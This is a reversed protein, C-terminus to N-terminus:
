RNYNQGHLLLKGGVAEACGRADVAAVPGVLLVL